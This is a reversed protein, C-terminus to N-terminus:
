KNPYVLLTQIQIQIQDEATVSFESSFLLLQSCNRKQAYYNSFNLFQKELGLGLTAIGKGGMFGNPDDSKELNPNQLTHKKLLNSEFLTKPKCPFVLFPRTVNNYGFLQVCEEANEGIRQTPIEVSPYTQCVHCMMGSLGM